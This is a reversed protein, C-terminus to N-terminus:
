IKQRGTEYEIDPDACVLEYIAQEEEHQRHMEKLIDVRALECGAFRVTEGSVEFWQRLFRALCNTLKDKFKQQSFLTM